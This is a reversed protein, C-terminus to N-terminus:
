PTKRLAIKKSAESSAPEVENIPADEPWAIKTALWWTVSAAISICAHYFLGMPVFGLVLTDNDWNWNDQHLIVLLIVLGIIIWKGTSKNM